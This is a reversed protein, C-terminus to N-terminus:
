QVIIQLGYQRDTILLPDPRFPIYVYKDNKKPLDEVFVETYFGDTSTANFSYLLENSNSSRTQEIEFLRVREKGIRLLIESYNFRRDVKIVKPTLGKDKGDLFIRAQRIPPANENVKVMEGEQGQEETTDKSSSCAGIVLILTLLYPAYRFYNM